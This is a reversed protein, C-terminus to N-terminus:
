VHRQQSKAQVLRQHHSGRLLGHAIHLADEVIM